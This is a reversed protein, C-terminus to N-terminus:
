LTSVHGQSRRRTLDLFRLTPCKRLHSIKTSTSCVIRLDRLSELRAIDELHVPTAEICLGLRKLNRLRHMQKTVARDIEGARMYLSEIPLSYITCLEQGIGEDPGGLEIRKLKKFRLLKSWDSIYSTSLMLDLAEIDSPIADFVAKAGEEDYGGYPDIRGEKLGDPLFASACNAIPLSVLLCISIVLLAQVQMNKFRTKQGFVLKNWNYCAISEPAKSDM